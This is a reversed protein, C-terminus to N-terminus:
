KSGNQEEKTKKLYLKIVDETVQGNLLKRYGLLKQFYKDYLEEDYIKKREKPNKRSRAIKENIENLLEIIDSRRAGLVVVSEELYKANLEDLSITIHIALGDVLDHYACLLAHYAKQCAHEFDDVQTDSGDIELIEVVARLAYRLENSVETPPYLDLNTEFQKIREALKGHLSVIDQIKM